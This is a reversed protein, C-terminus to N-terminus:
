LNKRKFWKKDALVVSTDVQREPISWYKKLLKDKEQNTVKVFGHKKYFKVAWFAAEWTGILIPKSLQSSLHKLLKGGIGRNRIKTRVYAHRILDVEHKDQVGMVGLIQGDEEYCWFVVGENIQKTLEVRPMYPEHWRDDPIVSKYAIASDNIIEYITEFDDKKSPRIVKIEM